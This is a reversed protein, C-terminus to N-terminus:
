PTFDPYTADREAIHLPEAPWEIAFVPDDWRVGRGAGPVFRAGMQYFIATDDALTIFGHAFGEPIYLANGLAADLEVGAWKCFHPSDPRLDIAVDFMRGRVCRVLKAESVPPEQYHMGRLTGRLTNISLNCQVGVPPLGAAAFEDECYARAFSGRADAMTDLRIELVDPLRTPIFKM